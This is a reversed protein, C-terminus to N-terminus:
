CRSAPNTILFTNSFYNLFFAQGCARENLCTQMYRVLCVCLASALQGAIWHLVRNGSSNTVCRFMPICSRPLKNVPVIETVDGENNESSDAKFYHIASHRLGEPFRSVFPNTMCNTQPLPDPTENKLCSDNRKTQLFQELINVPVGENGLFILLLIIVIIIVVIVIIIFIFIFIRAVIPIIVVVVVVILLQYQRSM